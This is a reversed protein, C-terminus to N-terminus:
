KVIFHLEEKLRAVLQEYDFEDESLAQTINLESLLNQVYEVRNKM